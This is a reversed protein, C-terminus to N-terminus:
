MGAQEKLLEYFQTGTMIVICLQNEKLKGQAELEEYKAALAKAKKVKGTERAPTGDAGLWILVQTDKTVSGGFEVHIRNSLNNCAAYFDAKTEWVGGVEDSCVANFRLVEQTNVQQIHVFPLADFLDQKFLLLTEYIRVARISISDPTHHVGIKQAIFEIGGEKIAEYAVELNDYESFISIASSQVYPLNAIKVYEALTFSRKGKLQESIKQSVGDTGEVLAGDEEYDYGLIYLPNNCEREILFRYALTEGMGKIGLAQVLALLRQTVKSPCKPNTCRLSTLVESMELPFGCTEESCYEPLADAFDEGFTFANSEKFEKVIM